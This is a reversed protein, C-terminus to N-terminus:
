SRRMPGAKRKAPETITGWGNRTNGEEDRSMSNQPNLASLEQAISLLAAVEAVKLRQDIDLGELDTISGTSREQAHGITEALSDWATSYDTM